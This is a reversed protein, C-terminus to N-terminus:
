HKTKGFRVRPGRTDSRNTDSKTHNHKTVIISTSPGPRSSNNESTGNQKNTENQKCDTPWDVNIAFHIKGPMGDRQTPRLNSQGRHAPLLTAPPIRPARTNCPANKDRWAPSWPWVFCQFRLMTTTMTQRKHDHGFNKGTTDFNQTTPDVMEPPRFKWM